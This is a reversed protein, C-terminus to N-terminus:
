DYTEVKLNIFLLVCRHPVMWQQIDFLITKYHDSFIPLITHPNMRNLKESKYEFIFLIIPFYFFIAASKLCFVRVQLGSFPQSHIVGLAIPPTPHV